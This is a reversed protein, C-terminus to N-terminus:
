RRSARRERLARRFHEVLELALPGPAFHQNFFARGATGMAERAEAPLGKLQMIAQALAISDEAPVTLGAKADRIIDAAEGDLCALIPRGAALYTPIKSPVTLALGKARNLTVLLASAQSFIGPMKEPSFRGVLMVNTLALREIEARLWESRSGSGVLVIKVEPDKISTAADLITELAQASGLNGAFVVNFGRSLDLPSVTASIHETLDLDGPNPHYAIPVADGAVNRIKAIFGRSQALILDSRQYIFRTVTEVAALVQRSRVFGTEELNDPWLDQVWIVHAAGKFQRFAAGVLGQLIPSNAYVFVIDYRKSRTLYPGIISGSAVFSLYNLVRRLGGGRGRTAVPVRHILYGSPHIQTGAGLARYGEFIQGHPYNPQGALVEVDCGCSRLSEVVENIRFTEPWFHQSVVLVRM